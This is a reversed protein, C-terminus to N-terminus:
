GRKLPHRFIVSPFSQAPDWPYALLNRVTDQQEPQAAHCRERHVHPDPASDLSQVKAVARARGSLNLLKGPSTEAGQGAVRLLVEEHVSPVM